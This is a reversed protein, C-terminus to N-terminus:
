KALGINQNSRYNNSLFALRSKRQLQAGGLSIRKKHQLLTEKNLKVNIIEDIKKKFLRQKQEEKSPQDAKKLM